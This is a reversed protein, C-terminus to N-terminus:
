FKGIRCHSISCNKAVYSYDGLQVDHMYYPPYVKTHMGMTTEAKESRVLSYGVTKGEPMIPKDLWRGLLKQIYYRLSM